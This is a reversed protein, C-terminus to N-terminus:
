EMMRGPDSGSGKGSGGRGAGEERLGFEARNELRSQLRSSRCLGGCVTGCRCFLNFAAQRTVKSSIDMALVSSLDHHQPQIQQEQARRIPYIGMQEQDQSQNQVEHVGMGFDNDMSDFGDGPMDYDLGDEFSGGYAMGARYGEPGTSLDMEFAPKDYTEKAEHQLYSGDGYGSTDWQDRMEIGTGWMPGEQAQSVHGIIPHPVLAIDDHGDEMDIGVDKNISQLEDLHSMLIDFIEEPHEQEMRKLPSTTTTSTQPQIFAHDQQSEIEVEASSGSISRTPTDIGAATTFAGAFMGSGVREVQNGEDEVLGMRRRASDVGRGSLSTKSGQRCRRGDSSRPKSVRDDWKTSWRGDQDVPM